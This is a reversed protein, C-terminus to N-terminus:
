GVVQGPEIRWQVEWATGTRELALVGGKKFGFRETPEGDVLWATLVSLQPEHGVIMLDTRRRKLMKLWPRPDDEPQLGPKEVLPARLELGAALLEATESSRLLPSHWIETPSLRPQVRFYTVLKAVQARGRRSLPREPNEEEDVAHAHRVLFLRM